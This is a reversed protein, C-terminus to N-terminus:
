NGVLYQDTDIMELIMDGGKGGEIESEIWLSGGNHLWQLWENRDYDSYNECNCNLPQWFYHSVRLCEVGTGDQSPTFTPSSSGCVFPPPSSLSTWPWHCQIATLSGIMIHFSHFPEQSNRVIKRELDRVSFITLNQSCNQNQKVNRFRSLSVIAGGKGWGRLLIVCQVRHHTHTNKQSSIFIAAMQHTRTANFSLQRENVMM